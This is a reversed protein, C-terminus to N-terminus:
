AESSKDLVGESAQFREMTFVKWTGWHYLFVQLGEHKFLRGPCQLQCM